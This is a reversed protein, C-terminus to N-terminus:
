ADSIPLTTQRANGTMGSCGNAVMEFDVLAAASIVKVTMTKETYGPPPDCPGYVRVTIKVYRIPAVFVYPYFVSSTGLSISGSPVLSTVDIMGSNLAWLGIPRVELDSEITADIHTYTGLATIGDIKLEEGNCLVVEVPAGGNSEQKKGNVFFSFNNNNKKANIELPYACPTYPTGGGGFSFATNWNVYDDSWEAYATATYTGSVSM